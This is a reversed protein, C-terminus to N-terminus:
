RKIGYRHMVADAALVAALLLAIAVLFYNEVNGKHNGIVMLVLSVITLVALTRWLNPHGKRHQDPATVPEDAM